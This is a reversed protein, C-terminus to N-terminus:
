EMHRRLRLNRVGNSREENNDDQYLPSTFESASLSQSTHTASTVSGDGIREDEVIHAGVVALVRGGDPLPPLDSRNVLALDENIPPLDVVVTAKKKPDDSDEVSPSRTLGGLELRRQQEEQTRM